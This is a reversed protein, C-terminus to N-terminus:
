ASLANWKGFFEGQFMGKMDIRKATGGGYSRARTPGRHGYYYYVCLTIYNQM